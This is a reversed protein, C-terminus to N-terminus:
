PLLALVLRRSLRGPHEVYQRDTRARQQYGSREGRKAQREPFWLWILVIRRLRVPIVQIIRWIMVAAM